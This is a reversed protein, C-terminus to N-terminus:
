KKVLYKKMYESNGGSNLYSYIYGNFKDIYFYQSVLKINFAEHLPHSVFVRKNKGSQGKFELM